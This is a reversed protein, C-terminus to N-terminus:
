NEEILSSGEILRKRTSSLTITQTAEDTKPLRSSAYCRPCSVLPRRRGTRAEVLQFGCTNCSKEIIKLSGYQPLPLTFKCGKSWGNCGIFRKGSIRNRVIRLTSSCEPCRYNFTLAAIKEKVLVESLEQGISDESDLLQVMVPRLHELARLLVTKRSSRAQEINEMDQDLRSTFSPDLILPCYKELIAIVRLALKTPRIRVDQIYSRQYLVAIIEARTAKTGISQEEMKQLLSNPNYRPPPQTFSEKEEIKSISVDDGTKLAPLDRSNDTVYPKYFEQWGLEMVKSGSLYFLHHGSVLSIRSNERLSDNSFTAMFRRIIIDLINSEPQSQNKGRLQGTPYIAPHAPDLKPGEYPRLQRRPNLKQVLNKYKDATGISKLIASYGIDPPLKQSSTRPYSILANLYLKEAMALTRAPTYHFVRFAESQLSALDFPYPPPQRAQWTDIDSIHLRTKSIDTVIARAELQSPIRDIEYDIGFETGDVRITAEIKWFPTPVFSTIARERDVVFRLTPGQVRGSTLAAYGGNHKLASQTLLRSINIGYLWDLEHRCLGAQVLGFDLSATVNNFALKLETETMTSFKMRQAHEDAGNSAYKLLTFGIVAGEVDYDCANVFRTAGAALSGIVRIWKALRLSRKEISHKPTWKYDWVPYYRQPSAGKSAVTYLHGLASCVVVLGRKTSCQFIPLGEIDRRQPASDEDIARAVRAAADPKECIVLTHIVEM